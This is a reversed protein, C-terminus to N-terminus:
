TRRKTKNSKKEVVTRKHALQVFTEHRRQNLTMEELLIERRRREREANEPDNNEEYFKTATENSVLDEHLKEVQKSLREEHKGVLDRTPKDDTLHFILDIDDSLSDRFSFKSSSSPSLQINDMRTITRIETLYAQLHESFDASTSRHVNIIVPADRPLRLM